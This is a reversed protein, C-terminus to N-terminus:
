SSTTVNGHRNLFFRIDIIEDPLIFEQNAYSGEEPFRKLLLDPALVRMEFGPQSAATLAIEIVMKEPLDDCRMGDIGNLARAGADHFGEIIGISLFNETGLKIENHGPFRISEPDCCAPLLLASDVQRQKFNNLYNAEREETKDTYPFNVTYEAKSAYGSYNVVGLDKIPAVGAREAM